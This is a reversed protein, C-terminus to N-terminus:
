LVIIPADSMGMVCMCSTPLLVEEGVWQVKRGVPRVKVKQWTFVTSCTSEDACTGVNELTSCYNVSFRQSPDLEVFSKSFKGYAQKIEVNKATVEVCPKRRTITTNLSQSYFGEVQIKNVIERLDDDTLGDAM